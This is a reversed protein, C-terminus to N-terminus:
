YDAAKLLEIPKMWRESIAYFRLKIEAQDEAFQRWPVELSSLFLSFLLV